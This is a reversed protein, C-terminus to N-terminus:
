VAQKELFEHSFDDGKVLSISREPEVALDHGPAVSLDVNEGVPQMEGGADELALADIGAADVLVLLMNAAEETRRVDEANFNRVRFFVDDRGRVFRGFSLADLVAIDAGDRETGGGRHRGDRSLM